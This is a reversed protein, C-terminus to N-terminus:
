MIASPPAPEDPRGAKRLPVRILYFALVAFFLIALWPAIDDFGPLGWFEPAEGMRDKIFVVAAIFLGMLAEGAILGSAALIGANEVRAKQADNHGRKKSIRNV